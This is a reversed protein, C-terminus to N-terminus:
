EGSIPAGKEAVSPRMLPVVLMLALTVVAFIWFCDFYALASAQQRRLIDIAQAALQQLAAPDGMDMRGQAQEVFSSLAPNFPDLYEGLRQTHFQDRREHLTQAMSTGFSGGENRLLSLLGVAAGRLELPTYLYAAVNAPAFCMSLGLVILVRPWIIQGPSIDLNMQSMWWNGAAM